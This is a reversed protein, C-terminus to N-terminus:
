LQVTGAPTTIAINATGTGAPMSPILLETSTVFTAGVNAGNVAVSTLGNIFGSGFLRVSNGGASPGSAPYVASFKLEPVLLRVADNGSDAVFVGGGFALGAPAKFSAALPSGDILGQKGNGAITSVSGGSILRIVNNATDSVYVNGAEDVAVGGPLKFQAFAAPGDVWGQQATGAITTVSGNAIKRIRNNGADAVYIAGDRDLAIGGPANYLARSLAGDAFGSHVSGTLTSVVGSPTVVRIESNGTDAVFLNGNADLAIAQPAKFQAATGVGDASGSQGNGALTSVTGDAAVRRITNNGTDAVYIVNQTADYAIGFPQKFLAQAGAGDAYGSKSWTGALVVPAAGPAMTAVVNHATDAIVVTGNPELAVGGLAKFVDNSKDSVALTRVSTFAPDLLLTFSATGIIAGSVSAQVPGSAASYPVIVEASKASKAVISAVIANGSEDSFTAALDPADLGSGTLVVRAGHPAAAPVIGTLTAGTASLALLSALCVFLLRTASSRM